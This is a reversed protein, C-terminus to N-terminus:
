NFPRESELHFESALYNQLITTTVNTDFSIRPHFCLAAQQTVNQTFLAFSILSFTNGSASINSGAYLRHMEM